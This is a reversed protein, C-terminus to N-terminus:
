AEAPFEGSRRSGLLNVFRWIEPGICVVKPGVIM